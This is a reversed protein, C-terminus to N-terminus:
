DSIFLQFALVHPKAAVYGIFKVWTLLARENRGAISSQWWM